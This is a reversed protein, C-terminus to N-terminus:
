QRTRYQKVLSIFLVLIKLLINARKNKYFLFFFVFFVLLILSKPNQINTSCRDPNFMNPRPCLLCEINSLNKLYICEDATKKERDHLIVRQHELVLYILDEDVKHSHRITRPNSPYIDIKRCTDSLNISHTM